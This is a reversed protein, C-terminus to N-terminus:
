NDLDYIKKLFADGPSFAAPIKLKCKKAPVTFKIGSGSHLPILVLGPYFLM